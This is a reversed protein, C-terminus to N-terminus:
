RKLEKLAQREVKELERIIDRLPEVWYTLGGWRKTLKPNRLTDAVFGECDERSYGHEVMDEILVDIRNRLTTISRLRAPPTPNTVGICKECYFNGAALTMSYLAFQDGCLHCTELNDSM